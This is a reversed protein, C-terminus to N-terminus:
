HLELLLLLFILLINEPNNSIANNQISLGPISLAVEKRFNNSQQTLISSPKISIRSETATKV